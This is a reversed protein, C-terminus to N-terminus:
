FKGKAAHSILEAKSMQEIIYAAEQIKGFNSVCPPDLNLEIGKVCLEQLKAAAKIAKVYLLDTDRSKLYLAAQEGTLEAFEKAGCKPCVAPRDKLVIGCVTCKYM